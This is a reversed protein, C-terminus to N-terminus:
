RGSCRPCPGGGPYRNGCIACTSTEGDIYRKRIYPVLLRVAIAVAAGILIYYWPMPSMLRVRYILVFGVAGPNTEM